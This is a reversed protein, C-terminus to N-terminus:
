NCRKKFRGKAERCSPHLRAVWRAPQTLSASVNALSKQEADVSKPIVFMSNPLGTAPHNTGAVRSYVARHEGRADHWQCDAACRRTTHKNSLQPRHGLPARTQRAAAHQQWLSTGARPKSTAVWVRSRWRRMWNPISRRTNHRGAKSFLFVVSKGTTSKAVAEAAAAKTGLLGLSLGGLGMGGIQMFERRGLPRRRSMSDSVFLM